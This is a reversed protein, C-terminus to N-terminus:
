ESEQNLARHLLTNCTQSLSMELGTEQKVLARYSHLASETEPPILVTVKRYQKPAKETM